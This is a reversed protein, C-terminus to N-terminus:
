TASKGASDTVTLYMPAADNYQAANVVAGQWAGSVNGTATISEFQFTRSEGAAHSTVAIGILVPDTMEIVTTGVQSWAKGDASTFGTFTGGSREIKVWYPVKVLVSSDTNASAGNAAARYQFSAGNGAAGDTNATMVMMAHTSGGNISDRIMVGGKAWTQTGPGISTVRAILSGDGTLTKYAYTFEDSNNWIDAGSGTLSMKGGTETVATTTVAPYGRTWVCLESAGSVTWNQVSEFETSTESFFPAKTNDYALPMSQKGGHIIAREAFPATMYGVTSGSLGDTMGDVWAEYIRSGEEDTYGEFDEIPAFELATFSWVDGAYTGAAGIEDVKWYYKTGFTMAPPTYTHGTVTSSPATGAVVAALDTGFYVKHSTAERGPRWNLQSDLAVEVAADEPTPVHAKVPVYFFRVEALGAQAALGGWNSNITLKVFKATVDGFSVITNATYTPTGSARAFEHPGELTTWTVGDESYEITVDKAGFGVVSEIIQNSNWVWLEHVKYSKDFEYQIWRPLTNSSTWMTTADTGHQDFEDLGSGNVTNQPGMGMQSGSAKATVSAIPYAYAESKFRWVDGKYITNDPSANVEDVRWYYVKDYELAAAPTYQTATQGQSVLVSGPNARSANNVDDLTTGLYVDHTAAFDGAAWSLSTDIAVGTANNAPKPNRSLGAAIAAEDSLIMAGFGLSQDHAERGTWTMQVERDTAETDDICPHFGITNGATFKLSAMRAYEIAVECTYGGPTKSSAIQLYAPVVNSTGDMNCWNYTQNNANFGFQYHEAHGSVANTTSFFVEICDANWIDGGSKTMSLKDDKVEAGIYINKDDWMLYFTGGCDAVGTWSTQGTYIQKADDLVAPTMADLNWDSLDGDLVPTGRYCTIVLPEGTAPHVAPPAAMALSLSLLTLTAAFIQRHVLM